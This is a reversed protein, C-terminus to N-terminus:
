YYRYSKNLKQEYEAEYYRKSYETNWFKEDYLFYNIDKWRNLHKELIVNGNVIQIFEASNEVVNAFELNIVNPANIPEFPILYNKATERARDILDMDTYQEWLPKYFHYYARAWRYIKSRFTSTTVCIIIDFENILRENPHCHTGVWTGSPQDIKYLADIIEQEDYEMLVNNTDGIKGLNHQISNIAGPADGEKPETFTNNLIDCLLGGCTYHPYAILNYM